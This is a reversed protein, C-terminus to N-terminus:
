KGKRVGGANFIWGILSVIGVGVLSLAVFGSLWALIEM